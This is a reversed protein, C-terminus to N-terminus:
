PRRRPWRKPPPTTATTLLAIVFSILLAPHLTLWLFVSHKTM